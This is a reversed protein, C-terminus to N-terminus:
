HEQQPWYSKELVSRSQEPPGAPSKKASLSVKLASQAHLTGYKMTYNGGKFLKQGQITEAATNVTFM